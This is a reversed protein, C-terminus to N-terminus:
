DGCSILWQQVDHCNAGNISQQYFIHVQNFQEITHPCSQDEDEYDAGPSSEADECATSHSYGAGDHREQFHREQGDADCPSDTQGEYWENQNWPLDEQSCESDWHDEAYEGPTFVEGNGQYFERIHDESSGGESAIDDQYANCSPAEDSCIMSENVSQLVKRSTNEGTQRTPQLISCIM